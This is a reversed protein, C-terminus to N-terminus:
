YPPIKQCWATYPQPQTSQSKPLEPLQQAVVAAADNSSMAAWSYCGAGAQGVAWDCLKAGLHILIGTGSGVELDGDAAKQPGGNLAVTSGVTTAAAVEEETAGAPVEAEAILSQQQFHLFFIQDFM